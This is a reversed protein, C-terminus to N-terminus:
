SSCASRTARPAGSRRSRTSRPGSGGGRGGRAARRPGHAPRDAGLARVRARGDRCEPIRAAAPRPHARAAGPPEVAVGGRARGGRAPAGRPRGARPRGSAARGARAGRPARAARVRGAASGIPLAGVRGAGRVGGRARGPAGARRPQPAGRCPRRDCARGTHGGGRVARARVPVPSVGGGGGGACPRPRGAGRAPARAWLAPPRRVAPPGAPLRRTSRVVGALGPLRAERGSGGAGGLDRGLRSRGRCGARALAGRRGDGVARGRGASRGGPRRARARRDCARPGVRRTGALRGHARDRAGARAGPAGRAVGARDGGARGARAGAARGVGPLGGGLWRAPGDLFPEYALHRRDQQGVLVVLPARNVRATALAAVSNGLGATTHVLVCAPEGRGIAYGSAIGVVSGEHLALVFRIDDPLAGLFSVETSGPNAFITTLGRERMVDFTVDRVARADGQSAM